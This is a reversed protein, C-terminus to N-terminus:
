RSKEFFLLTEHAMKNARRNIGTRTTAALETFGAAVAAERTLEALDVVVGRVVPDGVMLFMGRGPRLVRHAEVLVDLYVGRFRDIVDRSQRRGGLLEGDLSRSDVGLWKLSVLGYEAYPVSGIYPPHTVIADVSEDALETRRADQLSVAPGPGEIEALQRAREAYAVLTRAFASAPPPKPPAQRNFMVNPFGSHANSSRRLNESLAVLALDRARDDTVQKIAADLVLLEDLVRPQFWKVFWPDTRRPDNRAAATAIDFMSRDRMGLQATDQEGLCDVVRLLHAVADDLVGPPIQQVKARTILVALPNLDFGVGRRSTRWAEVLTTGSGVMPDLVVDGPQTLLEIAQCAIQPIFKGSYRHVDHTLYRTDTDACEWDLLTVAAQLDACARQRVMKSSVASM